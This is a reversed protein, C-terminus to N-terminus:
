PSSPSLVDFPRNLWAIRSDLMVQPTEGQQRIRLLVARLEDLPGSCFACREGGHAGIRPRTTPALRWRRANGITSPRNMVSLEIEAIALLCVTSTGIM